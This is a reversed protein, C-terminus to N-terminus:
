DIGYDSYVRGSLYYEYTLKEGLENELGAATDRLGRMSFILTGAAFVTITMSIVCVLLSIYIVPNKSAM